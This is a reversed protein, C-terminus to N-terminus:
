QKLFVIGAWSEERWKQKQSQLKLYEVVAVSAAVLLGFVVWKLIEM